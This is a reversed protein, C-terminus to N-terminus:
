GEQRGDDDGRVERANWHGRLRRALYALAEDGELGMPLVDAILRRVSHEGPGEVRLSPRGGEGLSVTARFDTRFYVDIASRRM